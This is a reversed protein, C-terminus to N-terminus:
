LLLENGRSHCDFTRISQEGNELVRTTIKLHHLKVRDGVCLMVNVVYLEFCNQVFCTSKLLLTKLYNQSLNIGPQQKEKSCLEVFFIEQFHELKQQQIVCSM